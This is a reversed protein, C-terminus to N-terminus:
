KKTGYNENLWKEFESTTRYSYSSFFQQTTSTGSDESNNQDEQSTTFSGKFDSCLKGDKYGILIGSNTKIDSLNNFRQQVFSVVENFLLPFKNTKRYYETKGDWTQYTKGPEFSFEGINKAWQYQKYEDSNEDYKGSSIDIENYKNVLNTFEDEDKYDAETLEDQIILVEPQIELNPISKLGNGFDGNLIPQQNTETVKSELNNFDQSGYLFENNKSYAQSTILFIYNPNNYKGSIIDLYNYNTASFNTASLVLQQNELNDFDLNDPNYNFVKFLCVNKTSTLTPLLVSTAVVGSVALVSGITLYIAKKM